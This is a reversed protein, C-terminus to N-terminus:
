CGGVMDPVNKLSDPVTNQTTQTQTAAPAYALNASGAGASALATGQADVQAKVNVLQTTQFAALLFM